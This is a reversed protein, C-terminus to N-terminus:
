SESGRRRLCSGPITVCSWPYMAKDYGTAEIVEVIWIDIIHQVSLGRIRGRGKFSGADFLVEEGETFTPKM